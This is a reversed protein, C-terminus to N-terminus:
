GTGTGEVVSVAGPVVGVVLCEPRQAIPEDADEVAAQAVVGFVVFGDGPWVVVSLDSSVCRLVEPAKGSLPACRRRAGAGDLHARAACRPRVVKVTGLGRRVMVLPGPSRRLGSRWM